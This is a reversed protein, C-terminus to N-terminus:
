AQQTLRENLRFENELSNLLMQSSELIRQLDVLNADELYSSDRKRDGNQSLSQQSSFNGQEDEELSIEFMDDDVMGQMTLGPM